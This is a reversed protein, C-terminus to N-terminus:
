NTRYLLTNALERLAVLADTTETQASLLNLAERTYRDAQKQTFVRAGEQELLAAIEPVEAASIPGKQWRQAFQGNQMLGYVVPLTKKGSVLDSKASKGTVATDGWIGLLDDLSQFALGLAIGFDRMMKQKEPSTRALLAGIETCAGLLSATKGHVMRWYADEPLIRENEYAIDLYQGGTLQICTDLLINMARYCTEPPYESELRKLASIAMSYMTDGTNVAQAIGWKKWVTPRGHRYDSMDEIDDHVLSFNHLIEVAAAAPLANKWTGGMAMTTVLLLIPRIRKGQSELGAGEGAWGMHYAVMERLGGMEEPLLVRWISQMEDEVAPRLISQLEILNM